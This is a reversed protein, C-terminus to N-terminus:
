YQILILNYFLTKQPYIELQSKPLLGKKVLANTIINDVSMGNRFKTRTLTRLVTKMKPTIKKTAM